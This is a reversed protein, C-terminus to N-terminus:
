NPEGMIAIFREGINTSGVDTNPLTQRKRSLPDMQLNSAVQRARETAMIDALAAM